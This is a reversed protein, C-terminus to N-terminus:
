NDKSFRKKFEDFKERSIYVEKNNVIALGEKGDKKYNMVKNMNVIYSRQCHFIYDVGKLKDEFYKLGAAALIYGEKEMYQSYKENAEVYLKADNGDARIHLIDKCFVKVHIKQQKKTIPVIIEDIPKTLKETDEEGCEDFEFYINDGAIIFDRKQLSYEEENKSLKKKNGNSLVETGNKSIDLLLHNFSGDENQSVTIIFHQRSLTKDGKIEITSPKEKSPSPRGVINEGLELEYSNIYEKNNKRVHLRGTTEM